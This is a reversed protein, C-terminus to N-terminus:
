RRERESVTSLPVPEATLVVFRDGPGTWGARRLPWDYRDIADQFHQPEAGDSDLSLYVEYSGRGRLVQALLMRALQAVTCRYGFRRGAPVSMPEPTRDPCAKWTAGCNCRPPVRLFTALRGRLRPYHLIRAESASSTGNDYPRTPDDYYGLRLARSNLYSDM